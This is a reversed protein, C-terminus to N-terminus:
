STPDKVSGRYSHRYRRRRVFDMDSEVHHAIINESHLISHSHGRQHCRCIRSTRYADNSRSSVACWGSSIDRRLAVACLYALLKSREEEVM